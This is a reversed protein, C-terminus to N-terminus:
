YAGQGAQNQRNQFMSQAGQYAMSGLALTTMPNRMAFGGARFGARAGRAALQQQLSGRPLQAIKGGVVKKVSKMMPARSGGTVVRGMATMKGVAGGASKLLSSGGVRIRSALPMAKFAAKGGIAKLKAGAKVAKTAAGAVAKTAAAAAGGKTVLGAGGKLLAGVFEDIQQLREDDRIIDDVTPAITHDQMDQRFKRSGLAKIVGKRVARQDIAEPDVNGGPTPDIGYKARLAMVRNYDPDGPKVPKVKKSDDNETIYEAFKKM